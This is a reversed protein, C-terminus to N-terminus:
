KGLFSEEGGIAVHQVETDLGIAIPERDTALGPKASRLGVKEARTETTKLRLSMRGHGIVVFLAPIPLESFRMVEDEKRTKLTSRCVM